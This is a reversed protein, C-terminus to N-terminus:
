PKLKWCFEPLTTKEEESLEKRIKDQPEHVQLRLVCGCSKCSGLQREGNVRLNLANKVALYKKIALAVGEVVAMGEVNNVCKKGTPNNGNCIDARAQAEENPVVIGGSGLWGSIVEIGHPIHQAQQWLNM